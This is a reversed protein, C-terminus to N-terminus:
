RVVDLGYDGGHAEPRQRAWIEEHVQETEALGLVLVVDEHPLVRRVRSHWACELRNM